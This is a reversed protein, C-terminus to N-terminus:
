FLISSWGLDSVHFRSCGWKRDTVIFKRNMAEQVISQHTGDWHITAGIAFLEESSSTTQISVVAVM